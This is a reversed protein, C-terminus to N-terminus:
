KLKKLQDKVILVILTLVQSALCSVIVIISRKPSHKRDAPVAKNVVFKWSFNQNADVKIEDYKSKLLVLRERLFELNETMSKYASGYTAMIDLQEKMENIARSNGKEIALYYANMVAEVQKDYEQVGQKRIFTLSDDLTQMYAQLSQYEKKIVKLAEAARERVIKNKTSDVQDSIDNAIKAALNKDTDTVDIRISNYETRKYSVNSEWEKGLKYQAFEDSPDIDYHEMLSYRKWLKWKIEDSQLLQLMAEAQEEEGFTSIDNKAQADETMVAKSLSSNNAPFFIVTSQYKNPILLSVGASLVATVIGVIIFKKRHQYLYSLFNIGEFNSSSTDM